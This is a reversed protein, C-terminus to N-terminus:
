SLKEEWILRSLQRERVACDAERRSMGCLNEGTVVGEERVTLASGLTTHEPHGWPLWCDAKAADVSTNTEGGDGELGDEGADKGQTDDGAAGLQTDEGAVGHPTDDGAGRGQTGEEADEGPLM